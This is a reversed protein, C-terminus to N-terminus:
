GTSMRPKSVAAFRSAFDPESAECAGGLLEAFM